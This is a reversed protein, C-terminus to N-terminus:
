DNDAQGSPDEILDDETLRESTIRLDSITEAPSLKFTDAHQRAARLVQVWLLLRRVPTGLHEMVAGM